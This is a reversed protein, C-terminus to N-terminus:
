AVRQAQLSLRIQRIVIPIGFLMAVVTFVTLNFINTDLDIAAFARRISLGSAIACVLMASVALMRSVTVTKPRILSVSFYMYLVIALVALASSLLARPWGKQRTTTDEYLVKQVGAVRAHPEFVPQGGSTLLAFSISDEPNLLLPQLKVIGKESVLSGPIGTPQTSLIRARVFQRDKNIWIEFPAEFDSAAIPKTGDNILQLTSLYPSEIRVGDLVVQLDQVTSGAEPQLAVSSVLQVSISRSALDFQWLFLPVVVGALAALLTAFFKWDLHLASM